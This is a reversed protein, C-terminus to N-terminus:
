SVFKMLFNLTFGVFFYPCVFILNIKPQKLAFTFYLSIFSSINKKFFTM